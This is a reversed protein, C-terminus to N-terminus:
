KENKMLCKIGNLELMSELYQQAKSFNFLAFFAMAKNNLETPIVNGRSSAILLMKQTKDSLKGFSHTLKEQSATHIQTLKNFFDQTSNSASAIIELPRQM